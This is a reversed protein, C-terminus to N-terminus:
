ERALSDKRVAALFRAYAGVTVPQRAIAFAPLNVRRVPGAGSAAEDGGLLAPGGPIFAFAGGLDNAGRLDLRITTREGRGLLIPYIWPRPISLSETEGSELAPCLAYRGPALSLCTRDPVLGLSETPRFRGAREEVRLLEIPRAM